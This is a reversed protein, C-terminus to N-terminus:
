IKELRRILEKIEEETLANTIIDFLDHIVRLNINDITKERTDIGFSKEFPVPVFTDKVKEHAERILKTMEEYEEKKREEAKKDKEGKIRSYEKLGYKTLWITSDNGSDISSVLGKKTLSSVVGSVQKGTLSTFDNIVFTWVQEEPTDNYENEAIIMIVDKELKTINM